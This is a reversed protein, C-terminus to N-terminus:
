DVEAASESRAAKLESLNSRHRWWIVASLAIVFAKYAPPYDMLLVLLSGGTVATLSGLASIKTTALVLVYLALALLAAPWALVV